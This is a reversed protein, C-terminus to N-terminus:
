GLRRKRKGLGMVELKNGKSANCSAHSSRCNAPDFALEPYKDVPKVHDLEWADQTHAPAYYDIEGHCIWCVENHAKANARIHARMEAYRRTHRPDTM